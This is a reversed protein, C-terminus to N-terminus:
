LVQAMRETASPGPAPWPTPSSTLCLSSIRPEVARMSISERPVMKQPLTSPMASLMVKLPSVTASSAATIVVGPRGASNSLDRISLLGSMGCLAPMNRGICMTLEPPENKLARKGAAVVNPFEIV